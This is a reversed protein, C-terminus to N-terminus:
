RLKIEKNGEQILKGVLSNSSTNARYASFKRRDLYNIISWPNYIDRRKGFTFGDYWDRVKEEQESLGYEDLINRMEEQTFGFSTEYKESTTTVVELNNLDLFISEKSVRTIGTMVARELYPNSKFTAQFLNRAFATLEKWCGGVYAEQLPTDYEDLLIITKKSM